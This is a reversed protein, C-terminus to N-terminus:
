GQYCSPTLFHIEIGIREMANAINTNFREDRKGSEKLASTYYNTGDAKYGDAGALSVEKIEM